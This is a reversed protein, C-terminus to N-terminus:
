KGCFGQPRWGCVDQLFVQLFTTELRGGHGRFNPKSKKWIIGVSSKFQVFHYGYRKAWPWSTSELGRRAPTAELRHYEAPGERSVPPQQSKGRVKWLCGGHDEKSFRGQMGRATATAWRVM